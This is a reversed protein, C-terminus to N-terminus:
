FIPCKCLVFYFEVAVTWITEGRLPPTVVLSSVVRKDSYRPSTSVESINHASPIVPDCSPIKSELFGVVSPVISREITGVDMRIASEIERPLGDIDLSVQSFIFLIERDRSSFLEVDIYGILLSFLDRAFADFGIVVARYSRTEYERTIGSEPRITDGYLRRSIRIGIDGISIGVELNLYKGIRCEGSLYLERTRLQRIADDVIDSFDGIDVRCM